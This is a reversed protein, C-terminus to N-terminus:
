TGDHLLQLVLQRFREEDGPVIQGEVRIDVSGKADNRQWEMDAARVTTVCLLM